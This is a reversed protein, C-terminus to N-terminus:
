LEVINLNEDFTFPSTKTITINESIKFVEISKFKNKVQNFMEDNDIIIFNYIPSEKYYWDINAVHTHPKLDEFVCRININKKSFFTSKKSKWYTALGNKLGLKQKNFDILAVEEPYINLYKKIGTHDFSILVSSILIITFFTYFRLAKQSSKLQFVRTMFYPFLFTLFILSHYNYRISDLGTIRGLIIPCFLIFSNISLFYLETFNHKFQKNVVLILNLTYSTISIFIILSLFSFELLYSITTNIFFYLSTIFSNFDFGVGSNPIKLFSFYQNTKLLTLGLITGIIINTSQSVIISKEKWYFIIISLLSPVVYNIFISLDSIVSISLLSIISINILNDNHFNKYTLIILFLACIFSGMHYSNIVFYFTFLFDNNFISPCSFLILLGLGINTIKKNTYNLVNALKQLLFIITFVQLIAFVLATTIFDNNLIYMLLFHVIMDPFFNPSPNLNFNSINNEEIFFDQYISPLYLTDSNFFHKELDQQNACSFISVVILLSLIFITFLNYYRSILYM